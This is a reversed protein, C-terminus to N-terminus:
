CMATVTTSDALMVTVAHQLFGFRGRGGCKDGDRNQRQKTRWRRRALERVTPGLAQHQLYLEFIARVRAAEEPNVKLKAAHLDLDFGLVRRAAPGSGRAAPPRSRTAPPYSYLFPM